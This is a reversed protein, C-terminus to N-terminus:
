DQYNTLMINRVIRLTTAVHEAADALFELDEPDNKPSGIRRGIAQTVTSLDDLLEKVEKSIMTTGKM